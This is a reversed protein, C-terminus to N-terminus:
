TAVPGHVLSALLRDVSTADLPRAFKYGQGNKVGEGRLRMWQDDTEIGEAIMELGLVKGLQVLTHVIAASEATHSIADVFAKDIKLIDIPFRRLYAFSSYGTGFDDISIRVGTAKLRTLQEVTTPVDHMLITETLELVLLDPSLGSTALAQRVAGVLTGEDLQNASVNVSISLPHGASQWAAGQRCAEQLVWQGVPVILDTSELTPIFEIPEVVGRRPHLWRLLAEAGTIVGTELDVIPQYLIFFQHLPLADRLDVELSHRADVADQMPTTFVVARRKGSAKAQNLAVDADHLLDESHARLGEAIGISATVVVPVETSDLAFPRAMVDLIRRAALTPGRDLSKGDILVVFEDGGLRGVTDGERLVTSLRDAVLVLLQDGAAHGLTDNIDKFDDLDLYLAGVEVHERRTRLMMQDLRDLILARNPLGTLPDHFALHTLEETRSRVLRTARARGTGLVYLLFAFLLSILLGSLLFDRADQNALIAGSVAKSRTAVTWGNHLDITTTKPGAPANGASFTVASPGSGFRFTLATHPHGALASDMLVHPEIRSGTWGIFETRRAAVTAPHAGGRYIASGVALSVHTGSTFPLYTNQGSDRAALLEPGIPSDCYDIGAPYVASGPRTVSGSELCYYGRTGAPVVSLLGNPGTPGAPDTAEHRTFASLQSAPVLTIAAISDLEPFREFARESAVWEQFATATLGPAGAVFSAASIDLDQEHQLALRLTSAVSVATATQVGASTAADRTAVGHAGVLGVLGGVLVVVVGVGVWAARHRPISPIGTTV